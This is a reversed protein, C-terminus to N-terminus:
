STSGAPAAQRHKRHAPDDRAFVTTFVVFVVWLAAWHYLMVPGGHSAALRGSIAPGILMGAAYFGNYSANGRSYDQPALIVGQLALSIPSISAVTAGAVTIAVCMLVYHDLVAFGVVTFSGVLGLWRMVLLHGYRDGWRGALNVFCLMGLAFFGPLLIAQEESIGKKEMLYLPLFLVASAQFYGYAFNGFCSNKISWILARTGLRVAGDAPAANESAEIEEVPKDPDLRWLVMLGTGFAVMGAVIFAHEISSFAVVLRSCLPGLMYGLAIAAAYVTTVMAKDNKGARTLLITECGIWIGASAAGDFFRVFAATEFSHTVFPFVSVTVAYLLLASVLTAKASFRDILKSMPFSFSIIGLAFWVALNGIEREDYHREDLHIAVLSIAIGCAVGVLLITANILWINRDQVRRFIRSFATM